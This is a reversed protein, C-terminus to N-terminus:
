PRDDKPMRLNMMSLMNGAPGSAGAQGQLSELLNKALNINVNDDEDNDDQSKAAKDGSGSAEGSLNQPRRNLDLIGTGQLEAEMRRSLEKIQETDDEGDSDLEEVRKRISDSSSPMGMMEKMMKAFEEENFSADKDEGESDVEEEEDEDIDSDSGFDDIFDAGDFGASNDNLFEEFRAVIRQLNEQAGTDGFNGTDEGKGQGRGKLEAELDEFNIDLWKEDDERKDWNEQIEKDTPLEEDGTEVDELLLKMERVVAKDQNQPDNLLMELGCALKMGAEARDYAKRDETSPLKGAWTSPIPFEQSKLQAYGVRTFRVSVDVLDDPKFVLGSTVKARLPRLAIPDRIYFAEVAPSIYAPKQHLLFAAASHLNESIQQPYKRLRYFAEEQIITSRLLRGPENQIIKRAEPLTIKETVQRKAEQKPKIIRLEGQNIWVRNDAVDPEIWAPLTGAAEILLFEGDSDAVKVWIDKHRKTLERLLYVIVWEDEISDGYNTRGQLSSIGDEKAIELKFAERQWIYDKLLDKTLDAASRQVEILRARTEAAEDIVAPAPSSPIHYISYEVADDPLEPKPIPRFTSKFWAIDEETTM